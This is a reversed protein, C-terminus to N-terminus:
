QGTLNEKKKSDFTNIERYVELLQEGIEMDLDRIEQLNIQFPAKIISKLLCEEALRQQDVEIKEQGGLITIKSCKQRIDLNDGFSIKKIRVIEEKGNYNIPVDIFRVNKGNHQGAQIEM